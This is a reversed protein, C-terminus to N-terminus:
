SGPTRGWTSQLLSQGRRIESVRDVEGDSRADTLSPRDGAELREALARHLDTLEAALKEENITGELREARAFLDLAGALEPEAFLAASEGARWLQALDASRAKQASVSLDQATTATARVAPLTVGRGEIEQRTIAALQYRLVRTEATDTSSPQSQQALLAALEATDAGGAVRRWEVLARDNTILDAPQALAFRQLLPDDAVEVPLPAPNGKAAAHAFAAITATTIFQAHTLDRDEILRALIVELVPVLDTVGAQGVDLTDLRGLIDKQAAEIRTNSRAVSELQGQVITLADLVAALAAGTTDTSM